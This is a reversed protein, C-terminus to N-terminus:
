PSFRHCDGIFFHEHYRRYGAPPVHVTGCAPPLSLSAPHEIRDFFAEFFLLGKFADAIAAAM